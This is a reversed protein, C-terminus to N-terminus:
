VSQTGVAIGPLLLVPILQDQASADMLAIGVLYQITTTTAAIGDVRGAAAPVVWMGETIANDHALALVISGVGAVRCNRNAVGIEDTIGVFAENSGTVALVSSSIKVCTGRAVETGGVPLTIPHRIKRRLKLAM